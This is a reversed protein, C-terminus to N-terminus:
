QQAEDHEEALEAGVPTLRYFRRRPRGFLTEEWRSEILEAAELRLLAPYLNGPTFRSIQNGTAEGHAALHRLIKRQHRDFRETTGPLQTWTRQTRRRRAACAFGVAAALAAIVIATTM